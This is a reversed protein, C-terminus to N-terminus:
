VFITAGGGVLGSSPNFYSFVELGFLLKKLYLHLMRLQPRETYMCPSCFDTRLNASQMILM